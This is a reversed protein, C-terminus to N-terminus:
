EKIIKITKPKKNFQVVAFYIGAPKDSIDLEVKGGKVNYAKTSLLQSYVNYLEVTIVDLSISLAIEFRGKTPNPTANIIGDIEKTLTGECLVSTKVEIVDGFGADVSFLTSSTQLVSRGNVSVNYPATGQTMEISVKGKDSSTKGSISTGSEIELSYCNQIGTATNTICLDYTGAPLNELSLERTFDNDSGNFNAVYDGQDQAVIIIQGNNKDLCTEGITKINYSEDGADSLKTLKIWNLNFGGKEVYFQMIQTGAELTVFESITKWSQFGGSSPVVVSNTKNVDDFKIVFQGTSVPSSVRVDLKYEGATEVNVSYNLWENDSIYSIVYDSDTDNTAEIDVANSRYQKGKNATDVDFFAVGNCGEDYSEAEIIGPIKNKSLTVVGLYAPDPYRLNIEALDLTGGSSPTNNYKTKVTNRYESKNPVEKRFDDVVLGVKQFDWKEFGAMPAFSDKFRFDLVSPNEFAVAPDFAIPSEVSATTPMGNIIDNLTKNPNYGHYDIYPVKGGSIYNNDLTSYSQTWPHSNPDTLDFIKSFNPYKDIWIQNSKWGEKGFVLQARGLYNNKENVSLTGAAIDLQMQEHEAVKDALFQEKSIKEYPTQTLGWIYNIGIGVNGEIHVDPGSGSAGGRGTKYFINNLVSLGSCGDDGRVATVPHAGPTEPFHHFFNYQIKNGFFAIDGGFYISNWDGMSYGANYIENYEIVHDNGSFSLGGNVDHILNNAFYGGVGGFGILGYGKIECNYIHNNTAVNHEQTLSLINEDRGGIAFANFLDFFDCGTISAYINRKLNIGRGKKSSSFSCGKVSIYESNDIEIAVLGFGTFNIKEFNLHKIGSGKFLVINNIQVIPKSQTIPQLPWIFLQKRKKDYYWEGPMDLQSLANILKFRRPVSGLEQIGYRTHKLLQMERTETNVRALFNRDYFWDNSLYGEVAIDESDMLDNNLLTLDTACGNEMIFKGGSPSEFSYAPPSEGPALFRDFPGGDTITEIYGFGKNPWQAVPLAYGDWSLSGYDGEDLGAFFSENALNAVYVQSQSNVPLRDMYPTEELKKFSAFPIEKNSTITVKEEQYAKIKLPDNLAGSHNSNLDITQDINYVGERLNVGKISSNSAVMEFAKKLTKVPTSIGGSNSDNGNPSVYIAQGSIEGYFTLVILISAVLRFKFIKM